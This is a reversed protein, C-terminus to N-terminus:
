INSRDNDMKRVKGIARWGSRRVKSKRNLGILWNLLQRFHNRSQICQSGFIPFTIVCTMRREQEVRTAFEQDAITQRLDTMEQEMQQIAQEILRVEDDIKTSQVQLQNEESRLMQRRSEVKTLDQGLSSLRAEERVRLQGIEVMQQELQALQRGASKFKEDLEPFLRELDAITVNLNAIEQELESIERPRSLVGTDGSRTYGGTMAGGPNIVDGELTVIRCAYGTQRAMAIALDLNEAIM